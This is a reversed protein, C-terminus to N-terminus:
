VEILSDYTDVNYRAMLINGDNNEYEEREPLYFLLVHFGAKKTSGTDWQTTVKDMYHGRAM